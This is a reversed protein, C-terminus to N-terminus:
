LNERRPNIPTKYMLVSLTLDMAAMEVIYQVDRISYGNANAYEFIPRLANGAMQDITRAEDTWEERSDQTFLPLPIM